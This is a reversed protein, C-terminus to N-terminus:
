TSGTARRRHMPISRTRSGALSCAAARSPAACRRPTMRRRSRMSSFSTSRGRCELHLDEGVRVPLIKRARPARSSSWRRCLLDELLRGRRRELVRLPFRDRFGRRSRARPLYVRRPVASNMTSAFPRKANRSTFAGQLDLMRSWSHPVDIQPAAAARRAQHRSESPSGPWAVRSRPRRYASVHLRNRGRGAADRVGSASPM